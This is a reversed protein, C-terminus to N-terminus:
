DGEKRVSQKLPLLTPQQYQDIHDQAAQVFWDKLTRDQAKLVRYLAHKFAPEVEIVLRGSPGKPM